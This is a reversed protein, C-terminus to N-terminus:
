YGIVSSYVGHKSCERSHVWERGPRYKLRFSGPTPSKHKEKESFCTLRLPFVQGPPRDEYAPLTAAAASPTEPATDAPTQASNERIPSWTVAGGNQFGRSLPLADGKLIPAGGGKRPGAEGGWLSLSPRRYRCAQVVWCFSTGRPAQFPPCLRPSMFRCRPFLWKCFCGRGWRSPHLSCM